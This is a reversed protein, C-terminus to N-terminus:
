NREKAYSTILLYLTVALAVLALYFIVLNNELVKDIIAVAGIILILIFVPHYKIKGIWNFWNVKNTIMIGVIAVIYGIASGIITDLPYHAGVGVRSLAIILGIAVICISWIVKRLNSKPMFAFLIITIVVFAAISHGSPLATKGSLTRGIIEFTDHDLVAAPRPVAFLKKLSASVVLSLIASTLLAEWLKPAYIIFITVFPFFILVDGLQTLNHQLSPYQALSGNVRYFLDKQSSIYAETFSGEADSFLFFIAIAALLLVAPLVSWVGINRYNDIVRINLGTNNSM